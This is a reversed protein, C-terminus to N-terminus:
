SKAHRRAEAIMEAATSREIPCSIHCCSAPICRTRKGPGVIVIARSPHFYRRMAQPTGRNLWQKRM